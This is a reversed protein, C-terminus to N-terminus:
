LFSFTKNIYYLFVRPNELHSIIPPHTPTLPTDVWMIISSTPAAGHRPRVGRPSGGGEGIYPPTCGGRECVQGM